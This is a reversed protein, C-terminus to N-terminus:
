RDTTAGDYTERRSMKRQFALYGERTLPPKAQAVVQRGVAANDALLDIVMSALAKANTLYTLAPDVIEYDAGHPTGKAGGVYPHIIPMVQGLDGMDTSGTRHLITRVNDAGVLDAAIARFREVMLPDCRLPMYGPLTEIEVSAGMALAGARLARDVKRDADAIAELSKGRVFTELRVEGPIVNVQSGGHTIIPHVRITDEDRFTERLANIAMLGIQAAYLANIGMHPAGGAHSARGVYRVTKVVCGNNSMPVALKGEERRPTAHIMMGMDVDDLHGLRLMEPKGGMFELRGADRQAVRWEVDGYEEAPVGV